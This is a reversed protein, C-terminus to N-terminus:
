RAGLVANLVADRTLVGVIEGERVVPLQAVDRNAMIQAADVLDQDESVCMVARSMVERATTNSSREDQGKGRAVQEVAYRLAEGATVMGLVQLEESVVPLSRLERRAMLEVVEDLPTDPFVRFRLPTLVHEVRLPEALDLKMLTAIARVEHASTAGLLSSHVKPNRLVRVLGQTAGTGFGPGRPLRVVLIASPTAEKTIEDGSGAFPGAAVGLAAWPEETESGRLSFVVTQPSARRMVGGEGAQLQQLLADGDTSGWGARAEPPLLGLLGEGISNARLPVLIREETLLEGLLM